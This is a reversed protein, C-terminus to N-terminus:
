EHPRGWIYYRSHRLDYLGGRRSRAFLFWYALALSNLLEGPILAVLAPLSRSAASQLRPRIHTRYESLSYWGKARLLMLTPSSRWPEAPTVRKRTAESIHSFSWVLAPWTFM